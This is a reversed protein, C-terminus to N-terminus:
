QGTTGSDDGSAGGEGSASGDDKKCGGTTIEEGNADFVRKVGDVIEITKGNALSILKGNAFVDITKKWAGMDPGETGDDAADDDTATSDDAAGDDTAGDDTVTGSGGACDPCTADDGTGATGSGDTATGAADDYAGLKLAQAGAFLLLAANFFKM